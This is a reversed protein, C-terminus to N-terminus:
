EALEDDLRVRTESLDVPAWTEIDYSLDILRQMEARDGDDIAAVAERHLKEAAATGAEERDIEQEDADLIHTLDAAEEPLTPFAAPGAVLLDDLEVLEYAALADEIDSEFDAPDRDEGQKFALEVLANALDAETLGGFMEVVGAIDDGTFEM